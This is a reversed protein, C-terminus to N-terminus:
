QVSSTEERGDATIYRLTPHWGPLLLPASDHNGTQPEQLFVPLGPGIVTCPGLDPDHYIRHVLNLGDIQPSSSPDPPPPAVPHDKLHFCPTPSTTWPTPSALPPQPLSLSPLVVITPYPPPAVLTFREKATILGRNENPPRITAPGRRTSRPSSYPLFLLRPSPPGKLGQWASITPDLSFYRMHNLTLENYAFALAL